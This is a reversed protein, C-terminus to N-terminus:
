WTRLWGNFGSFIPMVYDTIVRNSWRWIFIDLDCGPSPLKQPSDQRHYCKMCCFTEGNLTANCKAEFCAACHEDKRKDNSQKGNLVWLALCIQSACVLLRKLVHIVALLHNLQDYQYTVSKAWNPKIHWLWGSVIECYNLLKLKLSSPFMSQVM